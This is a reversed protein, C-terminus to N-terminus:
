VFLSDEFFGGWGGGGGVGKGTLGPTEARLMQCELTVPGCKPWSEWNEKAGYTIRVRVMM